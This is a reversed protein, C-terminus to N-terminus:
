TTDGSSVGGILVAHVLTLNNGTAATVRKTVVGASTIVQFDFNWNNATSKWIEVVMKWTGGNNTLAGSWFQVAGIWTYMLEKTNGNAAFRGTATVRIRDGVKGVV